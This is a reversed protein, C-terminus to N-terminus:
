VLSSMVASLVVPWAGVCSFGPSFLIDVVM